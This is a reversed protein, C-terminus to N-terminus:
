FKKLQNNSDTQVRESILTKVSPKEPNCQSSLWTFDTPLVSWSRFDTRREQVLSYPLSRKKSTPLPLLGGRGALGMLVLPAVWVRSLLSPLNCADWITRPKRPVLSLGPAYIWTCINRSVHASLLDMDYTQAKVEGWVLARGREKNRGTLLCVPSLYSHHGIVTIWVGLPQSIFIVM